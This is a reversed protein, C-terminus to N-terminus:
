PEKVYKVGFIVEGHEVEDYSRKKIIKWEGTTGKKEDCEGWIGMVAVKEDRCIVTDGFSVNEDDFHEVVDGVFLPRGIADKYNTPEGLNGFRGCNRHELHPVFEDKKEIAREAEKDSIRDYEDVVFNWEYDPDHGTDRPFDKGFVYVLDGRRVHAKLVDGKKAFRFRGNNRLRIYFDFDREEKKTLREFAIRAGEEFDFEDDPSCKATASNVVKGDEYLRALTEVGDTTIVIKRDCEVREFTYWASLYRVVTDNNSKKYTFGNDSTIKGGKVEYVKGITFYRENRKYGICKVKYNKM